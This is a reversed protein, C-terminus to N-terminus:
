EDKEEKEEEKEEKEEEKEKRQNKWVDDGHPKGSRIWHKVM